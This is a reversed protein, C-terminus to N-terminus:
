VDQWLISPKNKKSEANRSGDFDALGNPGAYGKGEFFRVLSKKHLDQVDRRSPFSLNHPLLGGRITKYGKSSLPSDFSFLGFKPKDSAM